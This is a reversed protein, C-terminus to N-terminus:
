AVTELAKIAAALGGSEIAATVLESRETTTLLTTAVSEAVESLLQQAQQIKKLDSKKMDKKWTTSKMRRHQCVPVGYRERVGLQPRLRM